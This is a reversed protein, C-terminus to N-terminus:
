PLFSAHLLAGVDGATVGVTVGQSGAGGVQWDHGSPGQRGRGKSNRVIVDKSACPACRHQMYMGSLVVRRRLRTGAATGPHEGGYEFGQKCQMCISSLMVRRRLEPVLSSKGM